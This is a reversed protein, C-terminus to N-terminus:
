CLPHAEVLLGDLPPAPTCGRRLVIGFREELAETLQTANWTRNEEHAEGRM